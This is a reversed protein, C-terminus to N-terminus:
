TEPPHAQQALRYGEVMAAVRRLGRWLTMPGPEGDGARALFGGLQATWRVAQRLTLPAVSPPGCTAQLVAIEDPTFLATAPCEPTVRAQLTLQLLRVAVVSYLALAGILAAADQLQLREERLGSKLVFHYREILWRRTYLDLVTGAAAAAPIPLTTLLRWDVPTAGPPPTEEVAWLAQLTVPGGHCRAAPPLTVPRWRLTLIADRAAQGPRAPLAVVRATTGAPTDAVTAWLRAPGRALRRDHRARILLHAHPPRPLAFLAYADAERDAITVTEVATPLDVHSATLADLWRQSEKAATPRQQRTVARGRTAPDRTWVHQDLVGLPVGDPTVALTTHVLLGRGTHHLAGLGTTAPHTSYALDTTDQLLLVRPLPRIRDLTHARHAARIADAQDAGGAFFRYAAKTAAPSGMAAPLTAEPCAVLRNALEAARLKRRFDGALYRFAQFGWTPVLTTVSLM